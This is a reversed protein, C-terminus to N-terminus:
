IWLLVYMCPLVSGVSWFPLPGLRTVPELRGQDSPQRQTEDVLKGKEYGNKLKFLLIFSVLFCYYLEYYEDNDNVGLVKM